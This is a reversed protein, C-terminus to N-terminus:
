NKFSNVIRLIDLFLNIFNLFLDLVAGPVDAESFTAHKMRSVDYLMYGSFIVVGIWALTLHFFEAQVFIGGISLLILALLASFLTSGLFTFDRKTVYTYVFLTGFLATTVGFALVVLSAGMSSIYSSIAPYIGIGMLFTLMHVFPMSIQIGYNSVKRDKARKITVVILVILVVFSVAIAIGFPIFAMGLLMGTFSILLTLFFQPLVRQTLLNRSSVMEM